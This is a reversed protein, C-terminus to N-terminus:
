VRVASQSGNPAPARGTWGMRPLPAVDSMLGNDPAFRFHSKPAVFVTTSGVSVDDASNATVRLPAARPITHYPTIRAPSSGHPSPIKDSQEAARGDRPRERDM